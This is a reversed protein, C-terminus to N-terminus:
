RSRRWWRAMAERHAAVTPFDAVAEAARGQRILLLALERASGFEMSTRLVEVAEDVRGDRELLWALSQDWQDPERARVPEIEAIGERSRGTEGMLRWRVSRIWDLKERVFEEGCGDLLELAWDPRGHEVLLHVVTELLSEGHVHDFTPRAAEVAEELRGQRALLATLTSARASHHDPTETPERLFAEAEAARGLRELVAVYHERFVLAHGGTALARLEEVRGHRALLEAYFSLTNQPGYRKETVDRGLRRIAEEARGSRELVEAERILVPWPGQVTWGEGRERRFREAIPALLELVRADRGRGDTVEVLCRLLRGNELYPVLVEIAEDVRGAKALLGAYAAVDDHDPEPEGPDPCVMALAEETRGLRFLVEAGARVGPGWGTAAFLGMVEWAREFERARCLERAAAQACLWEGHERAARVVLELHGRELLEDVM